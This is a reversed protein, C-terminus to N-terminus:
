AATQRVSPQHSSPPSPTIIIFPCIPCAHAGGVWWSQRLGGVAPGGLQKNLILGLLQHASWRLFLLWSKRKARQRVCVGCSVCVADGVHTGPSDHNKRGKNYPFLPCISSWLGEKSYLRYLLVVPPKKLYFHM